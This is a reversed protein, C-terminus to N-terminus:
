VRIQSHVNDVAFLAPEERLSRWYDTSELLETCQGFLWFWKRAFGETMEWGCPDWPEGWTIIGVQGNGDSECRGVLDNCLETDSYEDEHELLANRFSPIPFPDVWPHHILTRQLNTPQLSHPLTFLAASSHNFPSIREAQKVMDITLGLCAMNYVMARLVNFQTLSLLMDSSPNGQRLGHNVTRALRQILLSCSSSDMECILYPENNDVQGRSSKCCIIADESMSSSLNSASHSGRDAVSGTEAKKM